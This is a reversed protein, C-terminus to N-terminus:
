LPHRSFFIHNWDYPYFSLAFNWAFQLWHAYTSSGYFQTTLCHLRSFIICVLTHGGMEEKGYTGPFKCDYPCEGQPDTLGCPFCNALMVSGMYLWWVSVDNPSRIEVFVFLGYMPFRSFSQQINEIIHLFICQLAGLVVTKHGVLLSLNGKSCFYRHYQCSFFFFWMVNACLNACTLYESFLCILFSARNQKLKNRLDCWSKLSLFTIKM